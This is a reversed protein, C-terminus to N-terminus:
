VWNIYLKIGLYYVIYYGFLIINRSGVTYGEGNGWLDPDAPSRTNLTTPSPPLGRLLPPPTRLFCALWLRLPTGARGVVLHLQTRIDALLLAPNSFFQEKKIKIQKLM